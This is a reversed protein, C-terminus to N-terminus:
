SKITETFSFHTGNYFAVALDCATGLSVGQSNATYAVTLNNSSTDIKDIVVYEGVSLGSGVAITVTVNGGSCDVRQYNSQTATLTASSTITTGATFGTAKADLQTQIASTVGDVYNLETTTLTAGDLIELQAETVVADGITIGTSATMVGTVSVGASSTALKAVNDHYLTVAGDDVFTAMTEGGDTGGLIDVQSSALRLNGTGSDNIYSHSGDHYIKLDQSAGFQLTDDSGATATDGFNINKTNVDLNGGLQPSSDSLVDTGINAVNANAGTGDAYIVASAGNAITAETGTGGGQLITAIQGTSNKIFYFKQQDNPAITLDFVAGPTGALLLVKYHGNSLTGDTTTLTTDGTITLTVVGNLVRDIIDLNTNSTTGWTGSQEGTGIKELGGNGTYTSAM